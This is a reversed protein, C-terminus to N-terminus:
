KYETYSQLFQCAVFTSLTTTAVTAYNVVHYWMLFVNLTNILIDTHTDEEEKIALVVLLTHRWVYVDTELTSSESGHWSSWDPLTNSKLDQQTTKMWTTHLRRPPRRWNPSATLIKADTEDTMWAIHGFLSFVTSPCHGFPATARNDMEGGFVVCSPVMQDRIAKVFVMSWSCWDQPCREQYSGLVWFFSGYLFISLICTNYSCSPQFQSERSRSQNTQLKHTFLKIQYFNEITFRTFM